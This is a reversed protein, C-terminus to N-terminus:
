VGRSDITDQPRDLRALGRTALDYGVTTSAISMLLLLVGFLPRKKSPTFLEEKAALFGFAAFGFALLSGAWPAVLFSPSTLVRSNGAMGFICGGLILLGTSTAMLGYSHIHYGTRGIIACGAVLIIGVAGLTFKPKLPGLTFTHLLDEPTQHRLLLHVGMVLLAAFVVNTLAGVDLAYTQPM